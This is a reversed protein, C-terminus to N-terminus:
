LSVLPPLHQGLTTHPHKSAHVCASYFGIDVLLICWIAEPLYLQLFCQPAFGGWQVDDRHAYESCIDGVQTCVWQMDGVLRNTIMGQKVDNIATEVTSHCVACGYRSSYGMCM